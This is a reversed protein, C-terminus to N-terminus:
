WVRPERRDLLYACGMAAADVLDDHDAFPFTTMEEWLERQAPDAEAQRPGAGKLRFAGNEVAVSFAAVRAAKDATQTVSKLKPGFRAVRGLLDRLGRFAGNTEFLIVAPNWERDFAEILAVLEPAAVRRATCALVRIETAPRVGLTLSPTRGGTASTEVPYCSECSQNSDQKIRNDRGFEEIAGGGREREPNASVRGLVVLASRDASTASSVAPDVALIVMDCEAPEHWFRVWAPRIPTDEDAIPVLRYGRAFSASGIEDKRARLKEPPWKEAWVPEFDPGVAERFLAYAPNRKLRANLDDLHWPTFLGWFRGDPELLNMLNNAFYDAVRDREARSHLSRVDVVDDCVLLDARTGTSGAGIGFAAVSPGIVEAPRAVAFAEAAWPRGPKLHPFVWRVRPNNAIADRLFRSREGAVAETACVVKVRLAPNRGLEWLIRGCVQFSKGHDRPLEVLARPHDTLFQQLREHVPAPEIPNGSPDTLCARIFLCPDLEALPKM